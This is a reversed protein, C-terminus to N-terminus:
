VWSVKRRFNWRKQICIGYGFDPYNRGRLVIIFEPLAELVGLPPRLDTGM